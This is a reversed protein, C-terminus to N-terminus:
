RRRGDVVTAPPSSPASAEDQELAADGVLESLKGQAARRFFDMEFLRDRAHIFRPRRLLDVSKTCNITPISREDYGVTV